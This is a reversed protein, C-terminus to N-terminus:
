QLLKIQEDNWLVVIMRYHDRGLNESIRMSLNEEYLSPAFSFYMHIMM